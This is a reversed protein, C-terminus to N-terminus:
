PTDRRAAAHREVIAAVARAGDGSLLSEHSGPSWEVSLGGRVLPRWGLTEDRDRGAVSETGRIVVASGDWPEPRHRALADRRARVGALWRRADGPDLDAPPDPLADATEPLPGPRDGAAPADVLALLGVTRGGAELRRATAHAVHAGYSWGLLHVPGAPATAAIAEACASAAARIDAAAGDPTPLAWVSWDPPLARALEAFDAIGGGVAPLCVLAADGDGARLRVLRAAPTGAATADDGGAAIRRALGALTPWRFVDAVPLEV